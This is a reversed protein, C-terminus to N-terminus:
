ADDSRARVAAGRYFCHMFQGRSLCLPRCEDPLDVKPKYGVTVASLSPEGRQRAMRPLIDHRLIKGRLVTSHDWRIYEGADATIVGALLTTEGAHKAAGGIAGVPFVRQTLDFRKGDEQVRAIWIEDESAGGIADISASIAAL